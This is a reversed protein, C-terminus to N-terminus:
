TLLKREQRQRGKYDLQWHVTNELLDNDITEWLGSWSTGRYISEVELSRISLRVVLDRGDRTVYIGGCPWVGDPRCGGILFRRVGSFGDGMDVLVSVDDAQVVEHVQKLVSSVHLGNGNEESM